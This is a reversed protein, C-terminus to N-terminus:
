KALLTELSAKLRGQDSVAHCGDCTLGLQQHTTHLAEFLADDAQRAHCSFCVDASISAVAAHEAPVPATDHCASCEIPEARALCSLALSIVLLANPKM